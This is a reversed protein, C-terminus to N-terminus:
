LYYLASHRTDMKMEVVGQRNFITQRKM